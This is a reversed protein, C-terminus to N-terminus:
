DRQWLQRSLLPKKGLYFQLVFRFLQKAAQLTEKCSYDEKAINLVIEGSFIGPTKIGKDVMIFGQNLAFTYHHNAVIPQLDPLTHDFTLGYGLEDILRREFRRLSIEIEKEQLHILTNQYNEFLVASGEGKGILRVMLENVYFGAVQRQGILQLPMALAEVQTMTLLEGRGKGSFSLPIFPQLLGSLSKKGRKVGRAIAAIRGHDQTYIELLLSTDRYPRTHLIYAPQNTINIISTHM